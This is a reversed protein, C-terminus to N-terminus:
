GLFAEVIEIGMEDSDASAGILEMVAELSKDIAM